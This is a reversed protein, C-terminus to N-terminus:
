IQINQGRSDGSAGITDCQIDKANREAHAAERELIVTPQTDLAVELTDKFALLFDGLQDRPRLAIRHAPPLERAPGCSFNGDIIAAGFLERDDIYEAVIAHPQQERDRVCKELEAVEDM